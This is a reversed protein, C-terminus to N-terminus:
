RTPAMRGQWAAQRVPAVAEKTPLQYAEPDMWLRKVDQNGPDRLVRQDASVETLGLTVPDPEVDGPGCPAADGWPAYIAIRADEWVPAGLMEGLTRRVGRSRLRMVNDMLIETSAVHYLADKQNVVYRYGLDYLQQRDTESWTPDFEDAKVVAYLESLFRNHRLLQSFEAPAFVPNNELMGGMIPRGHATQYYLHGQTWAYPLEVIAGPGGGALCRYGAPITADWSPFPLVDALHLELLWVATLVGAVGAQVRRGFTGSWALVLAQALGLLICLYAVARAPWWLRRLFGVAKVLAVYPPNPLAIHGVLVIPGMALLIAVLAMALLPGRELRGPRRLYIALTVWSVIPVLVGQALLREVPGSRAIFFGAYRRLPQWLFLGISEDEVTIPPSAWLSWRSTDLLGPVMGTPDWTMWLLPLAVPATLVLAVLAILVHRALVALRGGSGEAPRAVCWAGHGLCVMGGFFAYFWYQYGCLALVAGAMIPAKWGRRGTRFVYFLFLVPLLLIAQTPRGEVLEFLVYPSVSFLVSSLVIAARDETFERVLFGFAVGTLALGTLVFLNYGLVPGFVWRFPLAAYGDLVNAGTHLFIDKGWPFFFLDTYGMGQGTRLQHEVFWYFWQTGYHDVYEIGLFRSPLHLMAPGFLVGVVLVSLPVVYWCVGKM